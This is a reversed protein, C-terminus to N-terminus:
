RRLNEATTFRPEIDVPVDRLRDLVRRTEPRVVAMADLLAKARAYAGHGEITLLDHTLETVAAAIKGPDVSFTGDPAVRFGGADLLRNLQLAQGKGHADGTGFRISRFASALFTPYMTREFSRDLVGKDVLQRLAWRGSIDAKAEEIAAYADKLELRVTTERGALRIQQPGLGHMLEHM